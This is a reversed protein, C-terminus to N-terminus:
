LGTGGGGRHVGARHRRHAPRVPGRGASLHLRRDPPFGRVEARIRVASLMRFETAGIDDPGPEGSECTVCLAVHKGDTTIEEALATLTTTKGSQRPAHVIFYEQQEVWMRADPLREAAALMYHQDPRCEGAINFRRM